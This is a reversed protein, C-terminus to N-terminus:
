LMNLFIVILAINTLGAFVGAIVDDLIVGMANKMNSDVLGVIGPKWIDYVRFLVVPTIFNFAMMPGTHKEVVIKLFSNSGIAVFSM